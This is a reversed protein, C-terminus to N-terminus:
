VNIDFEGVIRQQYEGITGAYKIRQDESQKLQNRTKELELLLSTYHQHFKQLKTKVREAAKNGSARKWYKKNGNIDDCPGLEYKKFFFTPLLSSSSFIITNIEIIIIIIIPIKSLLYALNLINNLSTLPIIKM